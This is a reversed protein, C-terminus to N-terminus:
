EAAMQHSGHNVGPDVRNAWVVSAIQAQARLL